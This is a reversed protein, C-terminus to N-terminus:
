AGWLFTVDPGAIGADIQHYAVAALLASAKLPPPAMNIITRARPKDELLAALQNCDGSIAAQVLKAALKGKRMAAASRVRCPRGCAAQSLCIRGLPGSIVGDVLESGELLARDPSPQRSHQQAETKYWSDPRPRLQLYQFSLQEEPKQIQLQHVAPWTRAAALQRCSEIQFREWAGACQRGEQQGLM